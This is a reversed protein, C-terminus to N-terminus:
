QDIDNAEKCEHDCRCISCVWVCLIIDCNMIDIMGWRRVAEWMGDRLDVWLTLRDSTADSGEEQSEGAKEKMILRWEDWQTKDPRLQQTNQGRDREAKSRERLLAQQLSAAPSVILM